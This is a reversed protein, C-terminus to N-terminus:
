DWPQRNLMPIMHSSIVWPFSPPLLLCMYSSLLTDAGLTGTDRVRGTQGPHLLLASPAIALQWSLNQQGTKLTELGWPLTTFVASAMSDLFAPNM